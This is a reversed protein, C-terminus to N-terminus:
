VKDSFNLVRLINHSQKQHMGCVRINYERAIRTAHSSHRQARLRIATPHMKDITVISLFFVDRAIPVRWARFGIPPIACFHFIMSFIPSRQPDNLMMTTFFIWFRIHPPVNTLPIRFCWLVISCVGRDKGIIHGLKSLDFIRTLNSGHGLSM